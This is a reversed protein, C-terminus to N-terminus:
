PTGSAQPLRGQRAEWELLTQKKDAGWRYNGVSGNKPLVRHCPIFIAIPNRAVASAVARVASPQGCMRALESYSVTSGLPIKLLANWVNKQFSTGFPTSHVLQTPHILWKNVIDQAWADDQSYTEGPFERNLCPRAEGSKNVFSLWHLGAGSGALLLSGFPSNAIGFRKM